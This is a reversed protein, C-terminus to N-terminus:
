IINYMIVIACIIMLAVLIREVWIKQSFINRTPSSLLMQAEQKRRKKLGDQPKGGAHIYEQMRNAVGEFDGQNVLDILRVGDKRVDILWGIGGNFIFSILAGYQNPTLSIKLHRSLDYEKREVHEVLLRDAEAASKIEANPGPAPTGWGWTYHKYDWYPKRYYSGTRPDKEWQKILEITAPSSRM